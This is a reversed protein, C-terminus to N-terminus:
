RLNLDFEVRRNLRRGEPTNNTAVPNTEGYGASSIRRSSIGKSILYNACTRARNESLSQNAAASGRDDTYGRIKVNYDPYRRLHGVLKDLEPFSSSKLTSKDTYFKINKTALNLIRNDNAKFVPCGNNSPSGATTRCKDKSDQVGDGDTDPCGQFQGVGAVKPCADKSDSIGDGDTDKSHDKNWGTNQNRSINDNAYEKNGNFPVNKFWMENAYGEIGDCSVKSYDGREHQLFQCQSNSKLYYIVQGMASPQNKLNGNSMNQDLVLNVKMSPLTSINGLDTEKAYGVKGDCNVKRYGNQSFTTLAECSNYSTIYHLVDASYNPGEKLHPQSNSIRNKSSSTNRNMPTSSGNSWGKKIANLRSLKAPHTATAYDSAVKRIALQAQELTAGLKAMVFGSFEDAELEKSPRGGLGDLTHGNLHHAIEHALISKSAWSESSYGELSKLFQNDYIIYRILGIDSPLTVAFCNDTDPCEMVIFNRKLGVQNLINDVIDEAERNSTFGLAGCIDAKSYKPTGHYSCVFTKTNQAVSVTPFIFVTCVILLLNKMILKM